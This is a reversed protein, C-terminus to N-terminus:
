TGPEPNRTGPEPNRTGPEPNRTQTEPNGGADGAEASADVEWGAEYQCADALAKRLVVQV